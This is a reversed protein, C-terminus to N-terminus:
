PEESSRNVIRVNPPGIWKVHFKSPDDYDKGEICKCGFIGKLVKLASGDGKGSVFHNQRWTKGVPSNASMMMQWEEVKMARVTRMAAVLRSLPLKRNGTDAMARLVALTSLGAFSNLGFVKEGEWGVIARKGDTSLEVTVLERALSECCEKILDIRVKEDGPFYFSGFHTYDFRQRKLWQVVDDGVTKNLSAIFLQKIDDVSWEHLPVLPVVSFHESLSPPPPHMTVVVLKRDLRECARVMRATNVLPSEIIFVPHVSRVSRMKHLETHLQDENLAEPVWLPDADVLLPVLKECGDRWRGHIWVPLKAAAAARVAERLADGREGAFWLEQVVEVPAGGFKLKSSLRNIQEALLKGEREAMEASVAPIGEPKEAYDFWPKNTGRYNLLEAGLRKDQGTYMLICLNWALLQFATAQSVKEWIANVLEYLRLSARTSTAGTEADPLYQDLVVVSPLLRCIDRFADGDGNSIATLAAVLRATILHADTEYEVALPTNAICMIDIGRELLREQVWRAEAEVDDVILIPRPRIVKDLRDEHM